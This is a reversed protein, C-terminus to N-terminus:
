PYLMTLRYAGAGTRRIIRVRATATPSTDRCLTLRLHDRSGATRTRSILRSGDYIGVDFNTRAPGRLRLDVTGDLSTRFSTTRSRHRPNLSGAVVKRTSGRWPDLVDRRLAAFAGADPRLRENFQWPVNSFGNEPLHAYSDAFAEGPDDLYHSGQNGPFYLGQDAGVCVFKYSSWYKAGFNLAPFPANSRFNAIHHGYEHTIAYNRTFGVSSGSGPDRDPIYMRREGASYCALVDSDGGCANSIESPVGIFLRLKGLELGHVRSGLFNVIDQAVADPNSVSQSVRAEVAIGDPTLFKKAPTAGRLESSRAVPGSFVRDRFGSAAAAGPPVTLVVVLTAPGALRVAVRGHLRMTM